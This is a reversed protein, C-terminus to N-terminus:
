HEKIELSYTGQVSSQIKVVYDGAPSMNLSANVLSGDSTTISSATSAASHVTLVGEGRKGDRLIQMDFHASYGAQFIFHDVDNEALSGSIVLGEEDLSYGTPEANAVDDNAADSEESYTAANEGVIHNPDKCSASRSLFDATCTEGSASCDAVLEM